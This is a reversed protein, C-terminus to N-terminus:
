NLPKHINVALQATNLVRLTTGKSDYIIHLSTLFRSGVEHLTVIGKTYIFSLIVYYLGWVSWWDAKLLWEGHEGSILIYGLFFEM